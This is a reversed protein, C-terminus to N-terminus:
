FNCLFAEPQPNQHWKQSLKFSIQWRRKRMNFVKAYGHSMAINFLWRTIVLMAM